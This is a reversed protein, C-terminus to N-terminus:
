SSKKEVEKQLTGIDTNRLFKRKYVYYGIIGIPTLIMTLIPRFSNKIFRRDKISKSCIIYKVVSKLLPKKYHLMKMHMNANAQEGHANKIMNQRAHMTYGSDLYNIVTESHNVLMFPVDPLQIWKYGEGVLNEGDFQPFRETRRIVDTKIIITQDSNCGYRYHLDQWTAYRIDPFSNGTISGDEKMTPQIIGICAKNDRKNWNELINEVFHPLVYDDSDIGVNLETDIVDYALQRATHVGGNEKYRYIIKFPSNASWLEVLERTKDTSGDDVVLWVFDFVTQKCLSEYLIPLIEGRNYTPTYITLIIEKM